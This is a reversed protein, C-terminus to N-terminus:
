QKLPPDPTIRTENYQLFMASSFNIDTGCDVVRKIELVPISLEVIRVLAQSSRGSNRGM